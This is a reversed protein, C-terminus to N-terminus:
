KKVFTNRSVGISTKVEYLYVGSMLDTLDVSINKGNVKSTSIIKGDLSIISISTVEESSTINLIDNVPNPYVSITSSAIENISAVTNSTVNIFDVLLWNEDTCNYHRIAVYVIPQNAAISSIDVEEDFFQEGASLTTEFVPAPWNGTQLGGLDSPLLVYMAYNEEYWGSATTEPSGCRWSLFVSSQNSCDIAPSVGVNDPTLPLQTAGSWSNSLYGSTGDFGPATIQPNNITVASWNNGDGDLDYTMWSAFASSDAASYIQANLAGASLIVALLLLIRNM